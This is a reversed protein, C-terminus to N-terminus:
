QPRVLAPMLAWVSDFTPLPDGLKWATELQQAKNWVADRWAIFAVAEAQWKANSSDKYSALRTSDKYGWSQAAADVAADIKDEIDQAAAQAQELSVPPAVYGDTVTYAGLVAMPYDAGGNVGSCRVLGAAHDEVVEDFWGLPKGNSDLLTKM